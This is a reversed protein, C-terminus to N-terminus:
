SGRCRRRSGTTTSPPGTVIASPPQSGDGRRLPPPRPRRAAGGLDRLSGPALARDVGGRGPAAGDAQRDARPDRALVAPRDAGESAGPPGGPHDHDQRPDRATGGEVLRAAVADATREIGHLPPWHCGTNSRRASGPVFLVVFLLHVSVVLCSVCRGRRGGCCGPGSARVLSRSPLISVRCRGKARRSGEGRESASGRPLLSGYCGPIWADGEARSGM